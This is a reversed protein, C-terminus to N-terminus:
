QFQAPEPLRLFERCVVGVCVSVLALGVFSGYLVQPSSLEAQLIVSGFTLLKTAVIGGGVCLSRM